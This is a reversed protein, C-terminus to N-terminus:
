KADLKALAESAIALDGPDWDLALALEHAAPSMKKLTKAVIEVMKSRETKSALEHFQTEIFVLCLADEYAQVEPDTRVSQKHLIESVREITKDGYGCDRLIGGALESHRDYLDHRWRLYGARTEPYDSRPWTWRKIHHARAALLLAESADPRLKEIWATMLQSHALEKPREVGDIVLSNPDASNVADIADIARAFREGFERRKESKSM